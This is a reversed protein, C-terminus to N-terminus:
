ALLLPYTINHVSELDIWHAIELWPFLDGQDYGCALIDRIM